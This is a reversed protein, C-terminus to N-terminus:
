KDLHFLRRANATTVSAIEAPELNKIEALIAAILPIYAPENREGRHSQPPLFPCDTELVICELPIAAFDARYKKSSPYGIYGGLGIYFGMNIYKLATEASGSFCHIVGKGESAPSQASWNSLINLMDEEAQRCHIILPLGSKDALDLHNYFTELQTHRPSYDRYYDLGCEGIAVVKDADALIDLHAFDAETAGNCEQPHIGVAAYISANAAAMDIAKQSSLIDIGTTIITKVGNEFARRFIEQRDTDFEPMDLHAHTDIYELIPM